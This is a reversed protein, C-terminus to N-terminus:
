SSSTILVDVFPRLERKRDHFNFLRASYMVRVLTVDTAMTTTESRLAYRQDKPPMCKAGDLKNKAVLLLVFSRLCPAVVYSVISLM